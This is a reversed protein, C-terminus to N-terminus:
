TVGYMKITGADINGSSMSFQVGDIAATVNCYGAVYMDVTLDNQSYTNGRCM